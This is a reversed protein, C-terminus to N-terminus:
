LFVGGDGAFSMVGFFTKYVDSYMVIYFDIAEIVNM